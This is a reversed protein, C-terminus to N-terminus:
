ATKAEILLKDIEEKKMDKALEKAEILLKDIEEKKMDKVMAKAEDHDGPLSGKSKLIAYATNLDVRRKIMSSCQSVTTVALICSGAILGSTIVKQAINAASTM